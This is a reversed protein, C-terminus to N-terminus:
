EIFGDVQLDWLKKYASDKSLLESHSGEELITGDEIYIIRDMKKITSLRHAIVLVTKNEMAIELAKQIQAESHSDLSSTAEDLLLIPSNKLMARAIAIRQREGGSLKVGREGVHTDFGQPTQMIFEYAQAKKSAIEIEEHTADRNGYAINDRLSRHFLIAEQPVYSLAERLSNLTITSINNEDISIYGEKIDYLRLLLKFLTSKGAGSRGVFAVKEGKKIEISFHNLVKNGANEYEFSIDKFAIAGDHIIADKAHPMNKVEIPREFIEVMENADSFAEGLRRFVNVFDFLRNMLGLVYIQFLAISGATITGMLWGHISYKLMFYEIAVGTFGLFIAMTGSSRMVNLKRLKWEKLLDSLTNKEYNLGNFLQVTFHNSIADAMQGNARTAAESSARDFRSKRTTFLYVFFVFSFTGIMLAYAINHSYPYVIVIAGITWVSLSLIENVFMNLVQELSTAYKDIRNQLSGTFSNLFFSHSHEILRSFASLRSRELLNNAFIRDIFFRTRVITTSVVRLTIYMAAATMIMKLLDPSPNKGVIDIIKKLYTPSYVTIINGAIVLIFITAAHWPYNKIELWFYHLVRSYAIDKKKKKIIEM